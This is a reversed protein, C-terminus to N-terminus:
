NPVLIEDRKTDYGVAGPNGIMLAPENSPGGRITRLPPVDGDATMSFVTASHNGMSAAWVERNKLDLAVGTPHRIGTKPGKISRIPAVDGDDTVRFVLISHDMDNAVYLEGREEDVAVQMPWNLGTKPGEIIRLPATNGSADRRYITISPLEFKGSGRIFRWSAEPHSEVDPGYRRISYAAPLPGEERLRASGHNTVILLNQKTDVAIGHPDEMQTDNGGLWRLPKEEGEAKKRYVVVANDHQVTVFLEQKGEDM